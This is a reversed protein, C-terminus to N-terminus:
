LSKKECHTEIHSGEKNVNSSDISQEKAAEVHYKILMRAWLDWTNCKQCLERYCSRLMYLNQDELKIKMQKFGILLVM